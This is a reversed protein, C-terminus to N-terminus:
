GPLGNGGDRGLAADVPLANARDDVSVTDLRAPTAHPCGGGLSGRDLEPAPNAIERGLTVCVLRVTRIPHRDCVSVWLDAEIIDVKGPPEETDLRSGAALAQRDVALRQM